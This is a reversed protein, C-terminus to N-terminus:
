PRADFIVGDFVRNRPGTAQRFRYRQGVRDIFYCHTVGRRLSPTRCLMDGQM